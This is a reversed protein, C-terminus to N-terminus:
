VGLDIYDSSEYDHDSGREGSARECQDSGVAPHDSSSFSEGPNFTLPNAAGTGIWLGNGSATM